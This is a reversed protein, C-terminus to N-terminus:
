RTQCDSMSKDMRGNNEIGPENSQRILTDMIGGFDNLVDGPVQLRLYPKHKRDSREADVVQRSVILAM